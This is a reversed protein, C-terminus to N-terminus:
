GAIFWAIFLTCLSVQLSGPLGEMSSSLGDQSIDMKEIGDLDRRRRSQNICSV